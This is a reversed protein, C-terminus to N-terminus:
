STRLVYHARCRSLKPHRPFHPSTVYAGESCSSTSTYSTRRVNLCPLLFFVTWGRWPSGFAVGATIQVPSQDYKQVPSTWRRNELGALFIRRLLVGDIKLLVSSMMHLAPHVYQACMHVRYLMRACISIRLIHLIISQLHKNGSQCARCKGNGERRGGGNWSYTRHLRM